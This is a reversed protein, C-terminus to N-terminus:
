HGQTRPDREGVDPAPLETEVPARIEPRTLYDTFTLGVLIALWLVLTGLALQDLPRGHWLKMYVLMILAAKATAIGLSALANGVGMPVYALAVTGALLLSLVAWILVASRATV